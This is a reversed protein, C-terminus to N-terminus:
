DSFSEKQQYRYGQRGQYGSTSPSCHHYKQRGEITDFKFLLFYESPSSHNRGQDIALEGGLFPVITISLDLLESLLVCHRGRGRSIRYCGWM